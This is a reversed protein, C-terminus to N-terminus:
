LYLLGPNIALIKEVIKQDPTWRLLLDLLSNTQPAPQINLHPWDTGWVLRDPNTQILKEHFAQGLDVDHTQLLNRYVCLKLWIKGSDMLRLLCQFGPDAIGLNVDFGGMHDIVTDVPSHILESEISPLMKCDTWLEAHLGNSRLQGRLVQYDEFNASGFFNTNSGSRASFRAARVGKARLTEIKLDTSSKLVVIGRLSKKKELCDFLLDHNEGYASPHVLVGNQLDLSELLSLYSELVAEEPTYSRGKTLPYQDYPGFVHAHCDWKSKM